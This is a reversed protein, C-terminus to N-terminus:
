LAHIIGISSSVRDLVKYSRLLPFLIGMETLGEKANKNATLTQDELLQALLGPGGTRVCINSSLFWRGRQLIVKTNSMSELKIRSLHILDKRM